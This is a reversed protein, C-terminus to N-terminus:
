DVAAEWFNDEMRAHVFRAMDQQRVRLIKHIDDEDSSPSHVIMKVFRLMVTLTPIYM